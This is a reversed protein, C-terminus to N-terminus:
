PRPGTGSGTERSGVIRLAAEVYGDAVDDVSLPGDRRYWVFVYECSTEIAAVALTMNDVAFTGEATGQGIIDRLMGHIRRRHEVLRERADETLAMALNNYGHRQDYVTTQLQLLVYVRVYARLRNVPSADTPVARELQEQFAVYVEDLVEGLLDQKSPFHWYVNPTTMQALKAISAMSAAQYGCSYFRERAAALIRERAAPLVADTGSPSTAQKKTRGM